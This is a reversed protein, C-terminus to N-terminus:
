PDRLPMILHVFKLTWYMSIARNRYQVENYCDGATTVHRPVRPLCIYGSRSLCPIAQQIVFYMGVSAASVTPILRRNQESKNHVTPMEVDLVRNESQAPKRETNTDSSSHLIRLSQLLCSPAGTGRQVHPPDVAPWHLCIHTSGKEPKFLLGATTTVVCELKIDFM